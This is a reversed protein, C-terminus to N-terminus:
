WCIGEADGNTTHPMFGVLDVVKKGAPVRQVLEAFQPDNNGLVIV